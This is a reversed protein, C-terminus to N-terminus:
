SAAESNEEGIGDSDECELGKEKDPNKQQM